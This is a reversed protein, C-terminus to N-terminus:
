MKKRMSDCGHFWIIKYLMKGTIFDPEGYESFAGDNPLVATFPVNRMLCNSFFKVQIIAM